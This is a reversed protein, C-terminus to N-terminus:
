GEPGSTLDHCFRLQLEFWDTNIDVGIHISRSRETSSQFTQEAALKDQGDTGRQNGAQICALKRADQSM